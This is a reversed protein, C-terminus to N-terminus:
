KALGSKWSHVKKFIFKVFPSDLKRDSYYWFEMTGKKVRVPEGVLERVEDYSYGVKLRNWNAQDLSDGPNTPNTSQEIMQVVQPSEFTDLRHELEIVRSTLEMVQQELDTYPSALSVSSNAIGLLLIGSIKLGIQM